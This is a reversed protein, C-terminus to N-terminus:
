TFWALNVSLFISRSEGESHAVLGLALSETKFAVSLSDPKLVPSNEKLVKVFKKGKSDSSM